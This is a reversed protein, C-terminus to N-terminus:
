SAGVACKSVENTEIAVTPTTDSTVCANAKDTTWNTCGIGGGSTVNYSIIEPPTSETGQNQPAGRQPYAFVDRISYGEGANCSGGCVLVFTLNATVTEAGTGQSTSLDNTNNFYVVGNISTSNQCFTVNQYETKPMPLPINTGDCGDALNAGINWYRKGAGCNTNDGYFLIPSAAPDTGPMVGNSWVIKIFGTSGSTSIDKM